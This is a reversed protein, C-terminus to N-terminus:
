CLSILLEEALARWLRIDIFVHCGNRDELVANIRDNISFLPQARDDSSGMDDDIDSGLIGFDRARPLDVIESM